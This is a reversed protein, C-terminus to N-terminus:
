AYSMRLPLTQVRGTEITQIALTNAGEGGKVLPSQQLYAIQTGDPSWVGALKGEELRGKLPVLADLLKGTAPDRSAVEVDRRGTSVAYYYDGSRTFNMALVHGINPKVLQPDGKPKGSEVGITWAGDGG